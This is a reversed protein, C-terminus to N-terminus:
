FRLKETLGRVNPVQEISMIQKMLADAKDRSVLRLANYGYKEEVDAAAIPNEVHGPHIHQREEYIKGERTKVFVHGSAYKPRGSNPDDERRIKSSLKLVVPDKLSEPDFDSLTLRGKLLAVAAIYPTSFHAGYEGQPTQQAFVQEGGQQAPRDGM